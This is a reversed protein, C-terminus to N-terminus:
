CCPSSRDCSSNASLLCYLICSLVCVSMYPNFFLVADLISHLSSRCSSVFFFHLSTGNMVTAMQITFNDSDPPNAAVYETFCDKAAAPDSDTLKDCPSNLPFYM